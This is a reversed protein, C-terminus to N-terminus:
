REAREVPSGAAVREDRAQAQRAVPSLPKGPRNRTEEPLLRAVRFQENQGVSRVDPIENRVIVADPQDVESAVRPNAVLAVEAAFSRGAVEDRVPIVVVMRRRASQYVLERAQFLCAFANGAVVRDAERIPLAPPLVPSCGVIRYPCREKVAAIPPLLIAETGHLDALVVLEHSRGACRALQHRRIGPVQHV